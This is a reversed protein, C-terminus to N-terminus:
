AVGGPSAAGGPSAVCRAATASGPEVGASRSWPGLLRAAESPALPRKPPKRHVAAGARRPEVLDTRDWGNPNAQNYGYLLGEIFGVRAGALEMIPLFLALDTAARFYRGDAGRLEDDSVHRWLGYRFARPHTAIWPWRRYAAAVRVRAPYGERRVTEEGRENRWRGHSALLGRQHHADRIRELAHECLLWDDADLLVVIEHDRPAPLASIALQRAQAAWVRRECRQICFRPDGAIEERLRTLTGDTSADDVLSCTYDRWTQARLSDILRPAWPAVDRGVSVVHIRERKAWPLGAAPAQEPSRTLHM